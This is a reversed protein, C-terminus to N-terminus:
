VHFSHCATAHLRNTANAVNDTVTTIYSAHTARTCQQQRDTQRDTQADLITMLVTVSM